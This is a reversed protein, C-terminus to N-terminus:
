VIFHSVYQGNVYGSCNLEYAEVGVLDAVAVAPRYGNFEDGFEGLYVTTGFGDEGAAGHQVVYLYGQGFAELATTGTFGMADLAASLDLRDSEPDLSAYSTHLSGVHFDTIKDPTTPNTPDYTAFNYDLVFADRGSGGTMEDIGLGGALRDNGAEGIL